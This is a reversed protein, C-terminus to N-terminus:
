ISIQWEAAPPPASAGSYDSQSFALKVRSAPSDSPTVLTGRRRGDVFLAAWNTGDGHKAQFNGGNTSRNVGRGAPKCTRLKIKEGSGPTLYSSCNGEKDQRKEWSVILEVWDAGNRQVSPLIQFLPAKSSIAEMKSAHTRQRKRMKAASGKNCRARRGNTNWNRCVNVAIARM